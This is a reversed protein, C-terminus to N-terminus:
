NLSELTAPTLEFYFAALAPIMIGLLILITKATRPIDGSRSLTYDIAYRVFDNLSMNKKAANIAAQRHLDQPIRIKFSGKYTKDPDKGLEKCTELYDEVAETFAKKLDKVTTGEFNVLDNIGLIKGYFVEDEASFQVNAIYDKYQLIDSMYIGEKRYHLSAPCFGPWTCRILCNEFWKKSSKLSKAEMIAYALNYILM